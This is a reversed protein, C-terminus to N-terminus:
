KGSQWQLQLLMLDKADVKGDGDLDANPPLIGEQFEYAGMDYADIGDRGLGPVDVPRPNGDLDDEPGITSGTDICPSEPKLHFDGDELDVFLPDADINGEGPYGGGQICSYTATADLANNFVPQVVNDSGVLISNTISPPLDLWSFDVQDTKGIITCNRVELSDGDSSPFHIASGRASFNDYILCNEMIMLDGGHYIGGGFGGLIDGATNNRVICRNMLITSRGDSIGGGYGATNREILCDTLTVTSRQIFVGGGGGSSQNGTIECDEVTVASDRVWLGGGQSATNGSIKCHLIEGSAGNAVSIGRHTSGTITFGDLVFRAICLVGPIDTTAADITTVNHTWDRHENLTEGDSGEFGGYIEIDIEVRLAEDYVGKAVWIEDGPSADQIAEGILRYATEWTQGNLGSGSRSVRLVRAQVTTQVLVVLLIIVHLMCYVASMSRRSSNWFRINM